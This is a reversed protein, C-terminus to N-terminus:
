PSSSSLFRVQSSAPFCLPFPSEAILKDQSLQLLKVSGKPTEGKEVDGFHIGQPVLTVDRKITGKIILRSEPNEPDNSYVSITKEQRGEYRRTEFVAEIISSGGPPIKKESALAAACGCDTSIKETKLIASGTNEFRFAYTIEQGPGAIGFDYTTDEFVMRPESAVDPEASFVSLCFGSPLLACCLLIIITLRTGSSM